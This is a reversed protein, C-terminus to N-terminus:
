KLKEETESIWRKLNDQLTMLRNQCLNYKDLDLGNETVAEGSILSNIYKQLSFSTDDQLRGFEQTYESPLSSRIEILSSNLEQGINCLTNHLSFGKRGRMVRNSASLAEPLKILMKQIEILAKNTQAYITLNHSKRFYKLSKYAGVGSIVALIVNIITLVIDLIDM